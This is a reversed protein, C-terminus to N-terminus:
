ERIKTACVGVFKTHKEPTFHTDQEIRKENIKKPGICHLRDHREYFAINTTLISFLAVHM